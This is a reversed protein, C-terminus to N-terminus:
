EAEDVIAVGCFPRKAAGVLFIVMIYKGLQVVRTITREPILIAFGL